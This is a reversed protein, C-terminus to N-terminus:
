MARRVKARRVVKPGSKAMVRRNIQMAIQDLPLVRDAHGAKAVFGPMGWVVSSAEDQVLTTGKMEKIYQCGRLGDYGMGTLVVAYVGAGYIDAVSRFMPDVAPRCSNERPGQGTKILVKVGSRAFTMHFDGPAIYVRGAELEMGAAGEVVDLSSQRSLQKALSATFKPPMHQTIVIPVPFDGDLRPVVEELARPGGTSAGIALISITGTSGDSLMALNPSLRHATNRSNTTSASRDVRISAPRKSSVSEVSRTNGRLRHLERRLVPNLSKEVSEVTFPRVKRAVDCAGAELSQTVLMRAERSDNAHLVIPIDPYIKRVNRIVWPGNMDPLEPDLVIMDPNVHEIKALAIRGGAATGALEGGDLGEIADKTHRRGLATGDVVLIRVNPM